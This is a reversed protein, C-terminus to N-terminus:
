DIMRAAFDRSRRRFLRAGARLARTTEDRAITELRARLGLGSRLPAEAAPVGRLILALFECDRARGLREDLEVLDRRLNTLAFGGWPRLLRAQNLLTKVRKRWEHITDTSVNARADQFAARARKYTRRFRRRCAGRPFDEPKLGAMRRRMGGLASRAAALEGARDGIVAHAVQHLRVAAELAEIDAAGALRAENHLLARLADTERHRALLRATARLRQDEDRANRGFVPRALRLVARLKKLRKRVEHLAIPDAHAAVLEARAAVLEELVIRRFGAGLKEDKCLRYSM